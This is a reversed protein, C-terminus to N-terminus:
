PEIFRGRLTLGAWLERLLRRCLILIMQALISCKGFESLSNYVNWFRRFDKEDM